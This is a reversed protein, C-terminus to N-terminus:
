ALQTVTVPGQGELARNRGLSKASLLAQDARELTSALADGAATTCGVAFGVSFTVQVSRGDRLSVGSEVSRLLRQTYLVAQERDCDRLLVCFEEGGYRGAFDALRTTAQVCRAAYAIVHDGIIHGYVDNVRKFHDIDAMVVAYGTGPKCAALYQHSKEFFAGRTYLGTLSDRQMREQLSARQREHLASFFALSAGVVYVITVMLLLQGPVAAAADSGSAAFWSHAARACYSVAAITALLTLAYEPFGPRQRTLRFAREGLIALVAALMLSAFGALVPPTAGLLQTLSLFVLAVFTLVFSSKGPLPMGLLSELARCQFALAALAAAVPVSYFIAPPLVPRAIFLLAAAAAVLMSNAWSRLAVEFDPMARSSSAAFLALMLALAAISMLLAAPTLDHTLLLPM